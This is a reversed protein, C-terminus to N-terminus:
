FYAVITAFSITYLYTELIPFRVTLILSLTPGSPDLLILIIDFWFFM